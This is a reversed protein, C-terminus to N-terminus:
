ASGTLVRVLQDNIKKLKVEEIRGINIKQVWGDVFSEPLEKVKRSWRGPLQYVLLIHEFDQWISLRKERVFLGFLIARM